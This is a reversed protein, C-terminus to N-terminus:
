QRGSISPHKLQWAHSADLRLQPDIPGSFSDSEIRRREACSDKMLHALAIVDNRLQRDPFRSEPNRRAAGVPRPEARPRDPSRGATRQEHRVVGVRQERACDRSPRGRCGFHGILVAPAQAPDEVRETV